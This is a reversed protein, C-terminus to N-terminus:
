EQDQAAIISSNGCNRLYDNEIPPILDYYKEVGKMSENWERLMSCVFPHDPHTGGRWPKDVTFHVTEYIWPQFKNFYSFVPIRLSSSLVASETPMVCRKRDDTANKQVGLFFTTVFDQDSYGSTMPDSDYAKNADYRELHPLRSLMQQFEMSDPTIVMAGSNWNLDNGAQIACPTPYDFWHTIDTRILIDGDLVIVKEFETLNFAWLKNFTAAWIGSTSSVKGVIKDKVVFRRNEEGVWLAIVDQLSQKMDHPVLVVHAANINHKMMQKQISYVGYIQDMSEVFNVIAVRSPHTPTSRGYKKYQELLTNQVQVNYLLSLSTLTLISAFMVTKLKLDIWNGLERTTISISNSADSRRLFLINMSM